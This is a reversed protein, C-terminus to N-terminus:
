VDLPVKGDLLDGHRKGTTVEWERIKRLLTKHELFMKSANLCHKANFEETQAIQLHYFRSTSALAMKLALSRTTLDDIHDAMYKAEVLTLSNTRLKEINKM